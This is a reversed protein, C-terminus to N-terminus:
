LIEIKELFAITQLYINKLLNIFLREIMVPIEFDDNLLMKISLTMKFPSHLFNSITMEKIPAIIANKCQNHQEGYEKSSIGVFQGNIKTLHLSIYRQLVGLEKFLPKILLYLNGETGNENEELHCSEFYNKNVEFILKILNFNFMKEMLLTKNEITMNIHYHNKKVKSITLNPKNVFIKQKKNNKNENIELEM